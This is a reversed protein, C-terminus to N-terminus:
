ISPEDFLTQRALDIHVRLDVARLSAIDTSGGLAPLLRPCLIERDALTRNVATWSSLGAEDLTGNRSEATALQELLEKISLDTDFVTGNVSDIVWIGSKGMAFLTGFATSAFVIPREVTPIPWGELSIGDERVSWLSVLGNAFVGAGVAARAEAWGPINVFAAEPAATAPRAAGYSLVFRNFEQM